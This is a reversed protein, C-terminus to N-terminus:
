ADHEFALVAILFHYFCVDVLHPDDHSKIGWRVVQRAVLPRGQQILQFGVVNRAKILEALSQVNVKVSLAAPHPGHDVERRLGNRHFVPNTNQFLTTDLHEIDPLIGAAFSLNRGFRAPRM